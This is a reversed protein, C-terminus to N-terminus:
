DSLQVHVLRHLTGEGSDKGSNERNLSADDDRHNTSIGRGRNYLLGLPWFEFTFLGWLDFKVKQVFLGSQNRSNERKSEKFETPLDGFRRYVFM